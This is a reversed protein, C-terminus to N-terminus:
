PLNKLRVEMPDMGIKASLDDVASETLICNQPHGPARMARQAGANLRVITHKTKAEFPYVYPLVQPNVTAGNGVGPSGWSDCKFKAAPLDIGQASFYKALQDATGFVAQTSAWVTLGGDQGWEAVLGHSELCQHCITPSGYEGEVIFADAVQLGKEFDDTKRE